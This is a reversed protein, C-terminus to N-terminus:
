QTSDAAYDAVCHLSPASTTVPSRMSYDIMMGYKSIRHFLIHALNCSLSITPLCILPLLRFEVHSRSAYGFFNNANLTQSEFLCKIM